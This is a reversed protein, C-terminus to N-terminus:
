GVTQSAAATCSATSTCIVTVDLTLPEGQAWPVLTLGDPRKGDSHSLRNPEKTIPTGTTTFAGLLLTISAEIAPLGVRLERLHWAM